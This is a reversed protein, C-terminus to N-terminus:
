GKFRVDMVMTETDRPVIAEISAIYWLEDSHSFIEIEKGICWKNRNSIYDRTSRVLAVDTRKVTKLLYKSDNGGDYSVVVDHNTGIKVIEGLQWGHLSSSYIEVQTGRCWSCRDLGNCVFNHYKKFGRKKSKFFKYLYKSDNMFADIDVVKSAGERKAILEIYKYRLLENCYSCIDGFRYKNWYKRRMEIVLSDGIFSKIDEREGDIMVKRNIKVLIKWTDYAFQYVAKEEEYLYAYVLASIDSMQVYNYDHQVLLWLAHICGDIVLKCGGIYSNDTYQEM